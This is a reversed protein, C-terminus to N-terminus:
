NSNVKIARENLRLPSEDDDAAPSRVVAEFFRKLTRIQSPLSPMFLSLMM